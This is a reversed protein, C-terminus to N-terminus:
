AHNGRLNGFNILALGEDRVCERTAKATLHAVEDARESTYVSGTLGADPYGPHCMIETLSDEPLNTLILLLDGLTARPGYFGAEFRAPWIPAPRSAVVARLQDLWAPVQEPLLGPIWGPLAKVIESDLHGLGANRLPLDRAAAIDLLPGLSQPFLYVSHHHADLHDPARGTLSIFREIQAEIERRIDEPDFRPAAALWERIHYFTGDPQVLTPVQAPPLVPRGSTLTLHVGLGLRPASILAADLGAPADPYNIMVTTSTVIGNAHADLIGQNIGPARGFDDANVIIQQM